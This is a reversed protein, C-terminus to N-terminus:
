ERDATATVDGVPAEGTPAETSRLKIEDALRAQGDASRIAEETINEARVVLSRLVRESLRLDREIGVMHSTQCRFYALFYLGRKNGKIDHALRREDWKALALLEAGARQIIERIHDACGQLDSAASQPFLIMAEYCHIRVESM